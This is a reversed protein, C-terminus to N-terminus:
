SSSTEDTGEGIELVEINFTLDEGALPHNLDATITTEGVQSVTALFQQGEENLLPLTVGVELEMDEPFISKELETVAEPNRDGYANAPDLTFTKSEGTTMGQLAEEFGTILQGTGVTVTMPEGRDYSSDFQTGDNLTGKYHLTVKAGTDITSTTM